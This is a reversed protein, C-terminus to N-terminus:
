PVPTVRVDDVLWGAYANAAGDVTDFLFRVRAQGNGTLRYRRTVWDRSPQTIQELLQWAGGDISYEIRKVDYITGEDETEHWSRFELDAAGRLAFAPSTLEGQNIGRPPTEYWGTEPHAFWAANRPASRHWLGTYTWGTTPQNFDESLLPATAIADAVRRRIEPLFPYFRNGPCETRTCSNPSNNGDRHGSIIDMEVNMGRHLARGLPNLERQEAKWALLRVLTAQAQPSPLDSTYTGLMAVGMTGGNQCSFHAGVVNDGGARGEFLTGDPAILWNYGIDVWGNNFVHFRWIARLWAAYDTGVFSDATHHVILHTVTTYSLAGRAQDGDPSGWEVRSVYPPQGIADTKTRLKPRPTRGPDIVTLHLDFVAFHDGLRYELVRQDWDFFVLNSSVSESGSDAGPELRMWESWQLGDKSARIELPPPVAAIWRAGVASFPIPSEIRGQARAQSAVAFTRSDTAQAWLAAGCTM